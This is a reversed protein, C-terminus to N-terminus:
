CSQHYARVSQGRFTRYGDGAVRRARVNRAVRENWTSSAGEKPSISSFSIKSLPLVFGISITVGVWDSVSNEASWDRGQWRPPCAQSRFREAEPVFANKLCFCRSTIPWSRRGFLLM